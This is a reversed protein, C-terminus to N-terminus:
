WPRDEEAARDLELAADCLAEQTAESLVSLPLPGADSRVAVCWAAPSEGEYCAEPPGYYRGRLWRGSVRVTITADVERRGTGECDECPADALRGLGGCSPCPAGVTRPIEYERASM